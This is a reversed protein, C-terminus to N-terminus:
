ASFYFCNPATKGKGLKLSACRHGAWHLGAIWIAPVIILVAASVIFLARWPAKEADHHPCHHQHEQQMHAAARHLAGRDLRHGVGGKVLPYFIPIHVAHIKRGVGVGEGELRVSRGKLLVQGLEGFGVAFAPQALQETWKVGVAKGAYGAFVDLELGGGQVLRIQYGPQGLVTYFAKLGFQDGGLLIHEGGNDAIHQGHQGHHHRHDEDVAIHELFHPRAAAKAADAAHAFGVGLYVHLFLGADGKLVHGALVLGLLAQLFDDVKEM